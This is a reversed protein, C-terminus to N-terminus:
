PELKLRAGPEMQKMPTPTLLAVHRDALWLDVEENPIEIRAKQIAEEDTEAEILAPPAVIHHDKQIFARYTPM